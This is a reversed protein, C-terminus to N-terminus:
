LYKECFENVSTANELQVRITTNLFDWIGFSNLSCLNTEELYWCTKYAGSKFTANPTDDAISGPHFCQM